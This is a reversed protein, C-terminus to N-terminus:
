KKGDLEFELTKTGVKMSCINNNISTCKIGKIPKIMCKQPEYNLMVSSQIGNGGRTSTQIQQSDIKCVINSEDKYCNPKYPKFDSSDIYINVDCM